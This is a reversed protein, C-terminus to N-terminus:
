RDCEFSHSLEDSFIIYARRNKLIIIQIETFYINSSCHATNTNAALLKNKNIKQTFLEDDGYLLGALSIFSTDHWLM